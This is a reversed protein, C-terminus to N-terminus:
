LDSWFFDFVDNIYFLFLLPSLPLGQKIGSYLKYRVHSDDRFIVNETSMYISAICSTFITGAGFLCLKRILRARSVRDFAGDFDIAILFVQKKFRKAHQTICRLLFVHDASSRNAQYATQEDAPTFWRTFRSLLIFDFLKALLHVLSIARYNRSEESSGKLKFIENVVTTRWSTPFLHHKLITNYIVQLVLLLKMPLNTVMKKVWGDATAKDEKLRKQAATIEDTNIDDDLSPIYSTSNVECLITSDRGAQGKEAFRSALDELEPKATIEASSFSGKWNIEKWLSKSDKSNIVKMWNGQEQQSVDKRIYEVVEERLNEWEANNYRTYHHRECFNDILGHIGGQPIVSRNNRTVITTVKAANYISNSFSSVVNDLTEIHKGEELSNVLNEYTGLDSEVLVQFSEWNVKSSNIKKAKEVTCGAPESLLDCSVQIACDNKVLNLKFTTSIPFHDPPNWVVKHVKFQEIASLATTNALILDNQAKRGGKQFTFDGKFEKNDLKLNNVIFCKYTRCIKLIEKGHENLISDVNPLYMMNETPLRGKIDGVRGNLDGGGLVVCNSNKPVFMNAANSFDTLDHYHSDVPAIYM